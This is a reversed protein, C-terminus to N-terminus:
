ATLRVVGYLVMGLLLGICGWFEVERWFGSRAALDIAQQLWTM